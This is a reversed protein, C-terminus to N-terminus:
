AQPSPKTVLRVGIGVAGLQQPHPTIPKPRVPNAYREWSAVLARRHEQEVNGTGAAIQNFNRIAEEAQLRSLM